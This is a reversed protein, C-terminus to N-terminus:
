LVSRLRLVSFVVCYFIQLLFPMIMWVLVSNMSCHQLHCVDFCLTWLAAHLTTTCAIALHSVSHITALTWPVCLPPCHTRINSMFCLFDFDYAIRPSFLASQSCFRSCRPSQLLSSYHLQDRDTQQYQGLALSALPLVFAINCGLSYLM